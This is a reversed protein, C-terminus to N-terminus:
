FAMRKCFKHFMGPSQVKIDFYIIIKRQTITKWWTYICANWLVHYVEFHM